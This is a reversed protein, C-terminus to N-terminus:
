YYERIINKLASVYIAHERAHLMAELEERDGGDYPIAAQAIIKGGDLTEDVFHVTVGFVKVGAKFAQGIADKGPFAPLLSPHINIIKGSFASLLVEGIIRMYGALCIFNIEYKKLYSLIEKEYEEKSAFSKPKLELVPVNLRRARESVYAGPRDCVCLAVRADLRGKLCAQAIAEFNSGNGSAFVAIKLM